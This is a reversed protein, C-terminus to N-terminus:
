KDLKRHCFWWDYCGPGKEKAMAGKVDRPPPVIVEDGFLDNEPWGAPISVKKEDSTKLAELARLIEDISRGVEQPYFIIARIIGKDDVTFVARVTNSARNSHIMGMRRAVDGHDAIIPFSIEIGLHDKIWEVWKIHSFIQDVSLGILETGLAQFRDMRKQFAVFETTCVPTFDGPHSFFVFWKGKYADPLSMPGHTTQVDM